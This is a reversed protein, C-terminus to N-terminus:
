SIVAANPMVWRGQWRPRRLGGKKLVSGDALRHRLEDDSLYVTESSIACLGFKVGSWIVTATPPAFRLVNVGPVVIKVLTVVACNAADDVEKFILGRM